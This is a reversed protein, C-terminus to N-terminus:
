NEVVLVVFNIVDIVDGKESVLNDIVVLDVVLIGSIIRVSHKEVNEVLNIIEKIEEKHLKLDQNLDKIEVEMIDKIVVEVKQINIISKEEFYVEVVNQVMEM